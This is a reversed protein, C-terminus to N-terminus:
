IMQVSHHRDSSGSIMQSWIDDESDSCSLLHRPDPKSIRASRGPEPFTNCTLELSGRGLCAERVDFRLHRKLGCDALLCRCAWHPDALSSRDDLLVVWRCSCRSESRMVRTPITHDAEPRDALKTQPRSEKRPPCRSIIQTRACFPGGKKKKCPTRCGLPALSKLYSKIKNKKEKRRKRRWPHM